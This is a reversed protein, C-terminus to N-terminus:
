LLRPEELPEHERVRDLGLHVLLTPHQERGVQAFRDPEDSLGDEDTRAIVRLDPCRFPPIGVALREVVRLLQCLGEFAKPDLEWWMRKWSGSPIRNTRSPPSIYSPCRGTSNSSTM